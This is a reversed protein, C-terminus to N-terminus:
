DAFQVKAKRADSRNGGNLIAIEIQNLMSYRKQPRGEDRYEKTNAIPERQSEVKNREYCM